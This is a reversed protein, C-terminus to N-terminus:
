VTWAPDPSNVPAALPDSSPPISGRQPLQHMARLILALLAAMSFTWGFAVLAGLAQVGLQKGADPYTIAVLLTGLVGCGAHVPVAGVPDDIKFHLLLDFVLNHVIGASIGIIFFAELPTARDCSATIAVLGGLIGGIVKEPIFGRKFFHSDVRETLVAMVYASLGAAAGALNTNFIIGAITDDYKLGSGGNFGWWGFWLMFVGLIAYGRSTSPFDNLNISGDARFRGIRSGLFLTFVLGCWGGVSHVVTSGAYDHFGLGQLWGQLDPRASLVQETYIGGGWAWHGFVPYIWAAMFGAILIYAGVRTREAIAGAPITVATACFAAQFLFFELGRVTITSPLNIAAAIAENATHVVDNPSVWPQGILGEHTVAFMLSFGPLAYAACTMIWSFLKYAGQLADFRMQVLGVELCKFGAQMFFVLVAALLVWFRDVNFSVAGVARAVADIKDDVYLKDVKPELEGKDAKTRLATDIASVDVKTKLRTEIDSNTPRREVGREVNELRRYVGTLAPRCDVQCSQQQEAERKAAEKQAAERQAATGRPQATAGSSQAWAPAAACVVCVIAMWGFLVRVGSASATGRVREHM